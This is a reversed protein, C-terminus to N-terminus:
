SAKPFGPQTLVVGDDIGELDKLPAIVIVASAAEKPPVLGPLRESLGPTNRSKNSIDFSM